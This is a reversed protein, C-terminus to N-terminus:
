AKVVNVMFAKYEPTHVNPDGVSPTLLNATDGCDKPFLWGYNFTMGVQHVTKGDVTFPRFRHTVMAVCKVEGRASSVKVKEGNKVGVKEALEDILSESALFSQPSGYARFAAGWVHNTAVTRGRGRIAPIHYGAGIFQAGRLTLLDGFESYPGHDVLWDSEMALLKERERVSFVAPLQGHM